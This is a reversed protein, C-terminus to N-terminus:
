QISPHPRGAGITVDDIRNLVRRATDGTVPGRNPRRLIQDVLNASPFFELSVRHVPCEGFLDRSAEMQLMIRYGAPVPVGCLICHDGVIGSGESSDLSTNKPYISKGGGVTTMKRAPSLNELVEHPQQSPGESDDSSENEAMWVVEELLDLTDGEM